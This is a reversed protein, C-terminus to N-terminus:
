DGLISSIAEHDDPKLLRRRDVMEQAKREFYAVGETDGDAQADVLKANMEFSKSRLIEIALEFREIQDDTLPRASAGRANQGATM